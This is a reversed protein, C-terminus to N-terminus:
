GSFQAWSQIVGGPHKAVHACKYTFLLLVIKQAIKCIFLSRHLCQQQPLKM